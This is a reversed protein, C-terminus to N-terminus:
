KQLEEIQNELNRIISAFQDLNNVINESPHPFLNPFEAILQQIKNEILRLLHDTSAPTFTTHQPEESSLQLPSSQDTWDNTPTEETLTTTVSKLFGFLRNAMSPTEEETSHQVQTDSSWDNWQNDDSTQM